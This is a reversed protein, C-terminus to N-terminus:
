KKFNNIYEHYAIYSVDEDVKIYEIDNAKLILKVFYENLYPNRVLIPGLLYTGYFGDKLVGESMVGPKFGTGSNVKFIGDCEDIVTERNSFGIIEEKILDSSYFQEGVIRFDIKRATYSFIGLGDYSNEDVIFKDGFISITDGTILFLNKYNKLDNIYKKLDELVLLTNNITGEGIYCFDYNSFVIKDGISLFDVVVNVNQKEVYKVLARVNGNEGYLNMLDYYLHAIRITKM